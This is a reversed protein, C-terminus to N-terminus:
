QDSRTVREQASPRAGGSKRWGRYLSKAYSGKITQLLTSQSSNTSPTDAPIRNLLYPEDLEIGNTGFMLPIWPHREVVSQLLVRSVGNASFPFAFPVEKQGVTEQVFRCSDVIQREVEDDALNWLQPHTVTHGGITFGERSLQRVEETTMYPRRQKLEDEVNISLLRCVHDIAPEETHKLRRIWAVFQSDTRTPVRLEHSISQLVQGKNPTALNDFREICLSVKHRYFMSRNDVFAQTIFFVCPIGHKLLLPRVDHFCQSLGDDFTVLLSPKGARGASKREQRFEQWTPLHFLSKLAVLDAEFEGCAKYPFLHRVYPLRENDDALHYCLVLVDRRVWRVLWALPLRSISTEAAFRGLSKLRFSPV